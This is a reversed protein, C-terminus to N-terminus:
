ENAPNSESEGGETALAIVRHVFEHVFPSDEAIEYDEMFDHPINMRFKGAVGFQGEILPDNREAALRSAAASLARHSGHEWGRREAIAMVAHCAADWLMESARMNDGSVFERDSKALLGRATEAHDQVTMPTQTQTM